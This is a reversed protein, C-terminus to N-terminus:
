CGDVCDNNDVVAPRHPLVVHCSVLRPDLGYIVAKDAVVDLRPHLLQPSLLLQLLLMDDRKDVHGGGWRYDQVPLKIAVM